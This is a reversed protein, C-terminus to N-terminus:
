ANLGAIALDVGLIDEAEGFEIDHGVADRGLLRDILRELPGLRDERFVRDRL